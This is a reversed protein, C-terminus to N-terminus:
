FEGLVHFYSSAAVLCYVSLLGLSIRFRALGFCYFTLQEIRECNQISKFVIGFFLQGGETRKEIM